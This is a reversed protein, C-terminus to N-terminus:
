PTKGVNLQWRNGRYTKQSCRSRILRLVKSLPQFNSSQDTIGPLFVLESM